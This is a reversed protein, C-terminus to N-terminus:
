SAGRQRLANATGQQSCWAAIMCALAAVSPIALLGFVIAYDGTLLYANTFALPGAFKGLNVFFLSGGTVKSVSQEPSLRAVEALFAGNWGSATSGFVFFLTCAALLPWGTTVTLCLVSAALMVVAIWILVKFCDRTLDALWGWFLRGAVGGLQSAMLVIGAEILGWRLQEAFFVVTFTTICVQVVVFAGGAISLHRLPANRWIATVGGFPNFWPKLEPNRDDDWTKVGQQLLVIIILLVVATGAFAWQWGASVAVAPGIVAAAVGGIPVGTQKLSFILNRREAPTFRMMLHSASPTLLGYGLGLGLASLFVCAVHPVIAVLCGAILLGLGAQTARCAGWRVSLNGGFVLSVLMALALLSIQYGILSSNVAYTEAVKPAMAPLVSTALTGVTQGALLLTVLYVFRTGSPRAADATM